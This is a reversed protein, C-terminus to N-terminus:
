FTFNFWRIHKNKLFYVCLADWIHNMLSVHYLVFSPCCSLFSWHLTFNYLFIVRAIKKGQEDNESTLFFVLCITPSLFVGRWVLSPLSYYGSTTFLLIQWDDILCQNPICGLCFMSGTRSWWSLPSFFFQVEGCFMAFSSTSTAAVCV